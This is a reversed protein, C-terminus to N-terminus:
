DNNGRTTKKQLLMATQLGYANENVSKVAFYRKLKELLYDKKYVVRTAKPTGKFAFMNYDSSLVGSKENFAALHKFQMTNKKKNLITDIGSEDLITLYLRGGIKVVRRLEMFWADALEAIHTFVSGAYILDFYNDEFPLHPASSITMFHLPPSLYTQCWHILNADVDVGWFESDNAYERFWRLLRATACGFEMVRQGGTFSFEDASLIQKMTRINKEGSHLFGQDDDACYGARLHPPPVPWDNEGTKKKLIYGDHERVQPYIKGPLCHSQLMERELKSTIENQFWKSLAHRVKIRLEGPSEDAESERLSKAAPKVIQKIESLLLKLIEREIQM